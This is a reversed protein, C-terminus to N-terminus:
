AAEPPPAANEDTTTPESAVAAAADATRWYRRAGAIDTTDTQQLRNARDRARQAHEEDAISGSDIWRVLVRVDYVADVFAAIKVRTIARVDDSMRELPTLKAEAIEVVRRFDGWADAGKIAIVNALKGGIAEWTPRDIFLLSGRPADLRGVSTQVITRQGPLRATFHLAVDDLAGFHTSLKRLKEERQLEAARAAEEREFAILAERGEIEIDLQSKLAHLRPDDSAGRPNYILPEGDLARGVNQPPPPTLAAVVRGREARLRALEREDDAHKATIAALPDTPALSSAAPAVDNTIKQHSQM